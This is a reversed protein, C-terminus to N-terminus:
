LTNQKTYNPYPASQKGSNRRKLVYPITQHPYAGITAIFMGGDITGRWVHIAGTGALKASEVFAKCCIVQDSSSTTAKHRSHSVAHAHPANSACPKIGIQNGRKLLQVHKPKGLMDYVRASLRLVGPQTSDLASIIIAVTKDIETYKRARSVSEGGEFVEWDSFSKGSM